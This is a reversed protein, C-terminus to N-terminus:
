GRKGRKLKAGLADIRVYGDVLHLNVSILGGRAREVRCFAINGAGENMALSKLNFSAHLDTVGDFLISLARRASSNETTYLDM